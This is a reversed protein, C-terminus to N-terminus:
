IEGEEALRGIAVQSGPGDTTKCMFLDSSAERALESDLPQEESAELGHEVRDGGLSGRCSVPIRWPLVSEEM